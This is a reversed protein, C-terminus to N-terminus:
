SADDKRFSPYLVKVIEQERRYWARYAEEKTTGPNRILSWSIQFTQREPEYPKPIIKYWTGKYRVTQMTHYLHVEAVIAEM